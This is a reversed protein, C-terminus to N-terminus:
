EGNEEGGMLLEKLMDIEYELVEVRLYLDEISMPPRVLPPDPQQILKEM